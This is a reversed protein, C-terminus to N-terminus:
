GEWEEPMLVVTSSVRHHESVARRMPMVEPAEHPATTGGAADDVIRVDGRQGGLVADDFQQSSVPVERAEGRRRTRFGRAQATTVTGGRGCFKLWM